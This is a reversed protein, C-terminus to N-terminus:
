VGTGNVRAAHLEVAFLHGRTCWKHNQNIRITQLVTLIAYLHRSGSVRALCTQGVLMDPLGWIM